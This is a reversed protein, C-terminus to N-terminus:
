TRRTLLLKLRTQSETVYLIEGKPFKIRKVIETLRAQVQPNLPAVVQATGTRVNVHAGALLDRAGKLHNKVPKGKRRRVASLM